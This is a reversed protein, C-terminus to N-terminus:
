ENGNDDDEKGDEIIEDTLRVEEDDTSNTLLENIKMTVHGYKENLLEIMKEREKFKMLPVIMSSQSNSNVEEVSQQAQKFGESLACGFHTSIRRLLDNHYQSLYTIKAIENVDNLSYTKFADTGDLNVSDEKVVLDEGTNNRKLFEDIQNKIRDNKASYVRSIRCKRVNVVQSLDVNAFQTAFRGIITDPTGLINNYGVVCDEPKRVLCNGSALLIQIKDSRGNNLLKGMYSALGCVIKGKHETFAILGNTCLIQEIQREDIDYINKDFEYEFMSCVNNLIIYFYDEERIMQKTKEKFRNFFNFPVLNNNYM